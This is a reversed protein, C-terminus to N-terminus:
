LNGTLKRQVDRVINSHVVDISYIYFKKTLCVISKILGTGNQKILILVM